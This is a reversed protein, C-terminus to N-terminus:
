AELREPPQGETDWRKLVKNLEAQLKVIALAQAKNDERLARLEAVVQASGESGGAAPNYARPVIAEGEHILALMDKPVYNTGVEFKPVTLGFRGTLGLGTQELSGAVQARIRQLDLLSAAGEEALQLLTQSLGPLLKAAEQDGARAQATTIAFRSQASALSEAGGGTLLGRIRAAEEFLTDTISQWASRFQEAARQAEEAAQAQTRALEEAAAKAATTAEIQRRLEANLDYAATVRAAEEAGLGTTLKALERERTRRLVEDAQGSIGLLQNELDFRTGALDDFTRKLSEAASKQAAEIVRQAETAARAADIQDRLARNYDYLAAVAAADTASLGATDRALQNARERERAGTENGTARLLEVELQARSDAYSQTLRRVTEATTDAVSAVAPVLEAFAGSLGLLQAYLKQGAETSTDVGEVIARFAARTEPLAGLGLRDFQGQLQSRGAAKREAESFFNEFYDGLSTQLAELGGAGRLMAATLSDGSVGVAILIDRVDVLATYADVLDEAAGDLTNVLAGVSSLSGDLSEYAAISQRVIEAAVDGQKRAIDSFSVAGIGLLELAAEATEIGSAVRIVTEFYGEGVNQFAQLGPIAAEAISDGAAGLVAGLKEQIEEGTLGKLDIKGIDVVFSDLRSSVDALALDLPGAALSIADYFNKFVQGFQQQLQPDADQYVTSNRNSTKIGFFKKTTNVDAYDQLSLGSDVISGLDQAGAFLGNGTIRTKTGFLATTLKGGLLAKDLAYVMGGIAGGALLQAGLAASSNVSKGEVIGFQESASAASQGRLVLNTIGGISNEINRLAALMGSQTSLQLRATDALRDTARAISESKAEADGFVTGTGTAVKAGDGGGSPGSALGGTVVFGLSAMAAAMAAMRFWATYPDGQAQNAVAVAAASAGKVLDSALQYARFATEAAELAKYGKTGEAFFGKAAGAMNGYLAIQSRQADQNLKLQAALKKAPEKDGDIKSIDAQAQALRQQQVAYNQLSNSLKALSNGAGDFARTLAEGFTEAKSPDLFDTLRKSADEAAKISAERAEKGGILGILERRKDIERQLAAVAAPDNKAKEQEDVLRAIAVEHIAQALSLNSAAALAAAREEDELQTVQRAIGDASQNLTALYRDYAAQGQEILKVGEAIAAARDKEAKIAFPQADTLENVAAVYQEQTISGRRWAQNLSDLDRYYSGSLGSLKELLAAERELERNAAAAGKKDANKERLAAIAKQITEDDKGAAVLKRRLAEEQQSQSLRKIGLRELERDAEVNAEVLRKREAQEANIESEILLQRNLGAIRADQAREEDAARSAILRGILGGGGNAGQQQQTLRANNRERVAEALQAATSQQRGISLLTNDIAEAAGKKIGLWAREILGLNELLRPTREEIAQAYSDQALRAAETTRGAQELAQIQEYTSKSLFNQAENLKLAAELPSKQLEAFAKATKEVAPGGVQELKIAALAFRDIGNAASVGVQVFERLAATAASQTTGLRDMREAMATLRDATTGSQNGSLILARNFDRAEDGGQLFGYALAGAAAAALTFPNILGVVYGGLARAANGVGGFMDKLQGGQQLLVTLPQQGSAISTAIDTFQAPVGRLAAATQKASLGMNGLGQTASAQAREAQRLQEIYPKLLEANGGRQKAIQEFYDATGRGGAQIAATAREISRVISQTGRDVKKAAADAGAGIGDMGKAGQAGAEAVGRATKKAAQEVRAFAGEAEASDATIGLRVKRDDSM